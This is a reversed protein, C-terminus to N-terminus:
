AALAQTEADLTLSVADDFDRADVPDITVVLDGTFDERGDLDDERFAAAAQAPRRWPTRPFSTPCASPASSRCRISAPSAARGSCRPSSAKAATRRRRSASCRSSSRTTPGPARPAPIASTSATASSPATSASSARARASSTPASSSARPGSWSAPRDQRRAAPRAPQAQAHHAGPGQRRHRRRPRRGRPHLMEPGAQGDVVHPRVFGVGTATRRYIGTVTGHPPAPRVTHNKGVELRGQKILSRLTRPLRRVAAGARRAQPGAGQAQAAPLEQPRRRGPNTRRLDAM